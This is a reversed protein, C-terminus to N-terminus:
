AVAGGWVLPRPDDFALMVPLPGGVDVVAVAQPAEGEQEWRARNREVLLRATDELSRGEAVLRLRAAVEVALQDSEPPLLVPEEQPTFGEAQLIHAIQRLAEQRTLVPADRFDKRLPRSGVWPLRVLDPMQGLGMMRVLPEELSWVVLVAEAGEKEMVSFRRRYYDLHEQVFRQHPLPLVEMAAELTPRIIAGDAAELGYREGMMKVGENLAHNHLQDLEGRAM